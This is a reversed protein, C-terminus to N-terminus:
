GEAQAFVSAAADEAEKIKKLNAAEIENLQDDKFDVNPKYWAQQEFYKQLQPDKFIRGHRAYIENRLVKLDEAFLDGLTEEGIPDTSLRVRQKDEYALLLDVNQQEITNLKIAKQNPAVKYWDRWAFYDRIGPQEFKKGHRAYFEERLIRLELISLGNLQDETLAVNQFNEMDGISVAAKRGKEKEELLKALNKREIDSLKSADYAPNKRYWYREDFYKQLWEETFPKGHIAEIEAVLITIEANSYGRLNDDKILKAQWVRMDGPEIFDHKAAEALRIIDLNAREVATLTANSFNKNPKYWAQKELYEQISKEKFVRGRKGFVVGRLLAYDDVGDEVKLPSLRTKTLRNKAFDFRDFGLKNFQKWRANRVAPDIDQASAFCGLVFITTLLACVRVKM